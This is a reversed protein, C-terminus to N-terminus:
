AVRGAQTRDGLLEEAMHALLMEIGNFSMVSVTASAMGYAEIYIRNKDIRKITWFENLPLADSRVPKAALLAAKTIQEVEKRSFWVQACGTPLDKMGHELMIEAASTPAVPATVEVPIEYCSWERFCTLLDHATLEYRDDDSPEARQFDAFSDSGCNARRESSYNSGVFRRIETANKPHSAEVPQMALAPAPAALAIDMPNNECGICHGHQYGCLSCRTPPASVAFTSAGNVPCGDLSRIVTAQYWSGTAPSYMDATSGAGMVWKAAENADSEIPAPAAVAHQALADYLAQRAKVRRDIAPEILAKIGTVCVTHYVRVAESLEKVLEVHAPATTSM